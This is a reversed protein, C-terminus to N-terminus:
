DGISSTPKTSGRWCSFDLRRDTQYKRRGGDDIRWVRISSRRNRQAPCSWTSGQERAPNVVSSAAWFFEHGNYPCYAPWTRNQGSRSTDHLVPRLSQAQRRSLFALGIPATNYLLNSLFCCSLRRHRRVRRTRPCRIDGQRNSYPKPQTLTRDREETWAM